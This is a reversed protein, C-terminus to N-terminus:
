PGGIVSYGIADLLRVVNKMHRVGIASYGGGGGLCARDCEKQRTGLTFLPNECTLSGESLYRVIGGTDCSYDCWDCNLAVSLELVQLSTSPAGCQCPFPESLTEQQDNRSLELHSLEITLLKQVHTTLLNRLHQRGKRQVGGREKRTDAQSASGVLTAISFPLSRM